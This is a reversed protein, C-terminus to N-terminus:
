HNLLSYISFVIDARLARHYCYLLVVFLIIINIDERTKTTFANIYIVCQPELTKLICGTHKLSKIIVTREPEFVSVLGRPFLVGQVYKDTSKVIYKVSVFRVTYLVNHM